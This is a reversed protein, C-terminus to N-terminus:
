KPLKKRLEVGCEDGREGGEKRTEFYNGNYREQM